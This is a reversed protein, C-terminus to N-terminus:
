PQSVQQLQTAIGSIDGRMVAVFLATTTDTAADQPTFNIRSQMKSVLTQSAICVLSEPDLNEKQRVNSDRDTARKQATGWPLVPLFPLSPSLVQSRQEELCKSWETTLGSDGKLIYRANAVLLGRIELDLDSAEHSEQGRWSSVAGQADIDDVPPVKAAQDSYSAVTGAGAALGGEEPHGEKKEVGEDDDAKEVVMDEEKGENSDEDKEKGEKIGEGGEGGGEEKKGEKDERNDRKM